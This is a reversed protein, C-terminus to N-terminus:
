EYRLSEVPNALAAKISQYSVTLWAIMLALAGALVFIGIGVDIKYAFNQLWRNIFFYSIPTAAIVAIFVLRTVDRSLLVVMQEVSAGLVKRIGIEKTRQEAAFSALGFLGLCSIFIAFVAAYTVISELRKEARYQRDIDEDLFSFDFPQSPNAAKWKQEILSLSTTIERPAIRVLVHSLPMAPRVHLVAPQIASRLSQFHFDKVVGIITPNAPVARSEFKTFIQGVVPSVLEFEKVFSENVIVAQTADTSIERSFNRGAILQMDLTPILDYDLRYHFVEITEGDKEVGTSSLGRAFSLSMATVAAINPHGALENKMFNFIRDGQEINQFGARTPIVAIQEKDFGLDKQSVFRFQQAMLLTVTILSVSLVFQTIVLSKTFLNKGGFKLKNKFVETAQLKSFRWAPYGGAVLGAFFILGTLVAWFLWQEYGFALTRDALTGFKQAFAEAAGMGLILALLSLALTEFIFQKFLQQREAGLVKRMGFEKFRASSRGLSLIAFNFCAILLIALAIGSLILLSTPNGRPSLGNGGAIAGLHYDTFPQLKIQFDNLTLKEAELMKGLNKEVFAPFKAEASKAQVRDALLVFANPDFSQWNQLFGQGLVLETKEFPLLFDFKLSSNEPMPSLVGTVALAQTENGLDFTLVKGIPNESGFYKEAMATSLVVGSPDTLAQAAHGQALPFSFMDLFAPDAFLIPEVFMKEDYRVVTQTSWFRVAKEIEPIQQELAPALPAPTTYGTRGKLALIVRHIRAAKAHFKDYSLESLILNALLICCALGLALGFLNIFSYGKHKLLNRIAIRLYNNFM